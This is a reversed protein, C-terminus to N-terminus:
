ANAKYYPLRRQVDEISNWTTCYTLLGRQRRFRVETKESSNFVSLIKITEVPDFSVWLVFPGAEESGQCSSLTHVESFSNMWELIDCMYEDIRVMKLAVEVQLHTSEGVSVLM